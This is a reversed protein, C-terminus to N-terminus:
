KEQKSKILELEAQLMNLQKKIEPLNKFIVTSKIFQFKDIAPSGLLNEGAKTDKTLDSKSGITCDDAVKVYSIINSNPGLQMNKGTKVSGAIASCPYIINNKGIKCNHAVHCQEGIKTGEGIVTSVLTGADISSICGIEVDDEIIVGKNHVIKTYNKKNKIFGFGSAGIISGPMISVNKGLKSKANIVVNEMIKSNEGIISDDGIVTNTEIVVYDKIQVNKGIVVHHNIQCKKSIQATKDIIASDAIFPEFKKIPHMVDLIKAAADRPNKVIIANKVHPTQLDEILLFASAKSNEFEKKYKPSYYVSLDGPEAFELANFDKIEINGDGKLKGGILEAIEALTFIKKM